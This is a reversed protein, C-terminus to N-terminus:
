FATVNYCRCVVAYNRRQSRFSHQGRFVLVWSLKKWWTMMLGELELNQQAPIHMSWIDNELIKWLGRITNLKQSSLWFTTSKVNESSEQQAEPWMIGALATVAILLYWKRSSNYKSESLVLRHHTDSCYQCYECNESGMATCRKFYSFDSWYADASGWEGRIYSCQHKSPKQTSNWIWITKVQLTRCPCDGTWM